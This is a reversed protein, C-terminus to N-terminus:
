LLISDRCFIPQVSSGLYFEIGIKYSWANKLLFIIIVVIGSYHRKRLWLGLFLLNLLFNLPFRSLYYFFFRFLNHLSTLTNLYYVFYYMIVLAFLRYQLFLTLLLLFFDLKLVNILNMCIKFDVRRNTGAYEVDIQLLTWALTINVCITFFKILVSLCDFQQRKLRVLSFFYSEFFNCEGM